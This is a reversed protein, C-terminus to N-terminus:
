KEWRIWELKWMCGMRAIPSSDGSAWSRDAVQRSCAGEELTQEKRKRALVHQSNLNPEPAVEELFDEKTPDKGQAGMAAVMGEVVPLGMHRFVRNVLQTKSQISNRGKM